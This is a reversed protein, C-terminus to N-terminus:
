LKFCFSKSDIDEDRYKELTEIAKKLFDLVQINRTLIVLLFLFMPVCLDTFVARNDGKKTHYFALLIPADEMEKLIDKRDYEHKETMKMRPLTTLNRM